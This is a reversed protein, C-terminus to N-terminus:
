ICGFPALGRTTSATNSSASGGSNVYCFRNSGDYRPSREWWYSESSTNGVNRIRNASTAHYTIQSLNSAETSNSYTASGFIEKEAFLAFYDDASQMTSGNYTAITKVEFQKFAPRLTSPIAARYAVNCWTRRKCSNWSGTNINSSNMYGGELTTGNALVNKQGVVFSCTTRNAGTKDKVATKLTYHGTDMLVMTVTQAVHSEGVSWSGYDNTGSANMASLSVSREQGVSWYETLDISGADAAQVMAVIEADSGGAWTVITLFSCSVSFTGSGGNYNTSDGYTVTITADGEEEDVSEVTIVNGSRSVSCCSTNNNTVSIIDGSCSTITVTDSLVDSTISVSSKDFTIYGDAKGITWPVALAGIEGNAWCYDSKPTIYATYDGANTGTNGSVIDMKTSDYNTFTATKQTGDYTITGTFVPTDVIRTRGPSASISTGKTYKEDVTYPFFRYYYVTGYTLGTDQYGTSSYANKVKSDVVVTGDSDNVPASGVKRVVKTGGWQAFTVGESVVDEPDTWIITVSNTDSPTTIISAGSVDGIKAIIGEVELTVSSLTTNGAKLELLGSNKNFALNDCRSNLLTDVSSITPYQSLDITQTGLREFSGTETQDDYIYIYETYLNGSGENSELLYITTEDPEPILLSPVVEIKYKPIEDLLDDIEDDTYTENTKYYNVLDQTAKTIFQTTTNSFESLSSYTTNADPITISMAQGTSPTLTLVHNDEPNQTLTFTTDTYVAGSPVDSQITHSNVTDANGAEAAYAVSKDADATNDVNGMATQLETKSVYLALRDLDSTNCGAYMKGNKFIASM